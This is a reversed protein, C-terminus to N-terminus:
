DKKNDFLLQNSPHATNTCEGTSPCTPQKGNPATFFLAARFM